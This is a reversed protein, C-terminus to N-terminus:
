NQETVQAAQSPSSRDPLRLEARYRPRPVLM